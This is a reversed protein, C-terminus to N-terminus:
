SRMRHRVLGLAGLLGSLLALAITGLTPVPTPQAIQVVRPLVQVSALVPLANQYSADGSQNAVLDCVGAGVYTVQNGSVTCVSPASTTSYVVPNVSPGGTSTLTSPATGATATAPPAFNIISQDLQLVMGRMDQVMTGLVPGLVGEATITRLRSSIDSLYFQNQSPDWVAGFVEGSGQDAVVNTLPTYPSSAPFREHVSTGNGSFHHIEGTVPNYAIVEGDAGNGLAIAVSATANAKNITYLTEPVTAGDGTVGFLQGDARFTISSFNDGLNGVEVGVGTVLDLTILLRGAVGNVKVIAYATHSVPDMAIGNAGTVTRGPVTIVHSAIVSGDAPSLTYFGFSSADAGTNQFPNVAYLLPAATVSGGIAFSAALVAVRLTDSLKRM